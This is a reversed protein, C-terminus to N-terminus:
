SGDTEAADRDCGVDRTTRDVKPGDAHGSRQRELGVATGGLTAILMGLLDVDPVGPMIANFPVDLAM